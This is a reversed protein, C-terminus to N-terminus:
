ILLTRNDAMVRGCPYEEFARRAVRNPFRDMWIYALIAETATIAVSAIRAETDSKGLKQSGFRM